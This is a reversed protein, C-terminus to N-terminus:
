PLYAVYDTGAVGAKESRAILTCEGVVMRRTRDGDLGLEKTAPTRLWGKTFFSPDLVVFSNGSSTKDASQFQDRSKHIALIGQESEYVEIMDVQRKDGAPVFRQTNTTYGNITRKVFMNAYVSRLNVPTAFTLTIIDNFVTETLTTGSSSTNYTALRNLLGELQPAADTTGTVASGRHLALEIDRKFEKM